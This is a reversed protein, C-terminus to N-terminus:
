LCHFAHNRSDQCVDLGTIVMVNLLWLVETIGWRGGAVVKYHFVGGQATTLWQDRYNQM